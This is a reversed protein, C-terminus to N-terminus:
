VKVKAAGVSGNIDDAPREGLVLFTNVCNDMHFSSSEDVGFVLLLLVLLMGPLTMVLVANVQEMLHQQM